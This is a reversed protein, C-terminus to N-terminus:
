DLITLAPIAVVFKRRNYSMNCRVFASPLGNAAFEGACFTRAFYGRLDMRRELDTLWVGDLATRAFILAAGSHDSDACRVQRGM